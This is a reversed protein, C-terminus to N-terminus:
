PSPSDEANDTQGGFFAELEALLMSAMSGPEPGNTSAGPTFQSRSLASYLNSAQGSHWESAFWYIAEERDFEEVEDGLPLSDIFERMEELTPDTM